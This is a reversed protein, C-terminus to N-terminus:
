LTLIPNVVRSIGLFVRVLLMSTLDLQRVTFDSSGSFLMDEHVFLSNVPLDHGYKVDLPDYDNKISDYITITNDEGASIVVQNWSVVARM